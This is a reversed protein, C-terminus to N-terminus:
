RTRVPGLVRDLFANVPAVRLEVPPHHGVGDILVLEKPERLLNWLPLARTLWPHEEDHRGNVMLKPVAIYPAFNFNAAEPLTPQMREDIGAGVFVVAQYRDDVAAFGLRSGAGWSFGYYALRGMDFEDRTGLYDMSMRLETAHRVMLDRFGVSPPPPPSSGAPLPRELMGHLVTALVARGAKLHPGLDREVSRWLPEFFFVSANPVYIITQFPPAANAPQYLHLLVSDGAVGDIWIREKRWDPTEDTVVVRANAPQPDYRYFALLNRFAEAGVPRYVPTSRDDLVQGAGQDGEGAAADRACRFGLAPSTSLAPLAGPVTFLYAPDQWSGGAVTYGGPAPNRLWEKVNGALGYVGWPSIGFPFADVPATGTGAFNARRETRVAASMYGWPMIVGRHSVTGNRAAKHWEYLTPMRKELSACFATAEYWTVGTVPHKAGDAPPAQSVWERPAPLGTRDLLNAPTVGDAAAAAWLSADAYGGRRVFERYEANTVEHRDLFYARLEISHGIPLDPGVLEYRGGPIAVMGEPVTGAAPIALQITVTRGEWGPLHARGFESSAVRELPTLGDRHATLRYEARPLRRAVIPTTGLLLSDGPSGGEDPMRQLYIRAGPPESQVTFLDSVRAMLEALTSDAGLRREARAALAYADVYRGAEALDRITALSERARATQVTQWLMFLAVVAAGLGAVAVLVNRRGAARGAPVPPVTCAALFERPTGFREAPEKALARAIAADLDMPVEDRLGRVPPPPETLVQALISQVSPGTFPPVGALMEYLVCGLAYVDSRGDVAQSGAIQEPSMYAPTGLSLGTQTMREGAASQVALAIGFDAVLAEGDALLINEPKIDRHVIDHEHAYSLASAVDGAVQLAEALPLRAHRELRDRLSEGEVYPMVYFLMGAAEGSDFLPLIHPHQLSATLEIERLFRAAGIAAALEPRLVKIAVQR